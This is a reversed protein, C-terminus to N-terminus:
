RGGGKERLHSSSAARSRRLRGWPLPHTDAGPVGEEGRSHGGRGRRSLRERGRSGCNGVPGVFIAPFDGLLVLPVQRVVLDDAQGYLKIFPRPVTKQSSRLRQGAKPAAFLSGGERGVGSVSSPHSTTAASLAGARPKADELTSSPVSSCASGGM